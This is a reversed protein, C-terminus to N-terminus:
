ASPPEGSASAEGEGGDYRYGMGRVTTILNEGLKRRLYGVYVEVVNSGPEFSYGWVQSLLQERSLVQGRHRLFTETLAFERASLEVTRDGVIARRTRLDLRLRGADLVTPEPTREPRTRARIRALLEEFSFPKTLYDDAGGDLGAVTDAVGDRATLVIIPMREGRTRIQRLVQFGDIGPLGVDLILLDFDEDRALRAAAHGDAVTWTSFGNAVLGKELFSAIGAEDEAILVRTM